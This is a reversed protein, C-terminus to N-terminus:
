RLVKISLARHETEPCFFHERTLGAPPDWSQQKSVLLRTIRYSAERAEVKILIETFETARCWMSVAEALKIYVDEETAVSNFSTDSPLNSNQNADNCPIL